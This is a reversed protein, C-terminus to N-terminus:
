VLILGGLIRLYQSIKKLKCLKRNTKEHQIRIDAYFLMKVLKQSDVTL